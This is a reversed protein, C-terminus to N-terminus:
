CNFFRTKLSHSTFHTTALVFSHGSCQNWQGWLPNDPLLCQITKAVSSHTLRYCIWQRQVYQPTISGFLFTFFHSLIPLLLCDHYFYFHFLLTSHELWPKGPPALPLSVYSIHTWDRPWSSGRSFLMAVWELIRAQLIGHVSPGPPCCDVPDCLTLCSQLSKAPM